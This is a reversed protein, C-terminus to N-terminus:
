AAAQDLIIGALDKAANPKALSGLKDGLDQRAKQNQLLGNVVKLVKEPSPEKLVEAAGAAQLQKINALQHGGTLQAAPVVVCAKHQIAFEALTSAGARCLILDAAGSFRYFDPTFGIVRVRDQAEPMASYFKETEAQHQQGAILAMCLKPNSKLLAPAIQAILDNLSGSGLGGGTVLLALGDAPLGLGTKFSKQLAPTVEKVREDVPIGTFRLSGKPYNYNDEPQGVAHVSAWRGIIRNALGPVADSDHTIIPIGLRHAAIGVPVAVYGGKSFVV